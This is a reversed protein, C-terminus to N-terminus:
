SFEVFVGDGVRDGLMVHQDWLEAMLVNADGVLKLIAAIESKNQQQRLREMSSVPTAPPNAELRLQNTLHNYLIPTASSISQMSRTCLNLLRLQETASASFVDIDIYATADAMNPQMVQISRSALMREISM